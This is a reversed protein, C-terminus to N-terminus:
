APADKKSDRRIAWKVQANGNACVGTIAVHRSRRMEGVQGLYVSDGLSLRGGQARLRFGLGSPLRLLAAVGNQALSVQVKPHLHFRIAFQHSGAGTLVDEGRVDEGDASLYLRRRHIVAFREAYGNHSADLWVQGDTEERNVTVEDPARGLSGDPAIASSNTDDITLTSHAATSRQAAQWEIEHHGAGGLNVVLRERAISLEFALTGAHARGELAVPGAADVLLVTRGAALRQFGMDPAAVALRPRSESQAIVTELFGIEGENAGNFLALTGDAYRLYRLMAAMAEIASTLAEPIPQQATRLAQRIDILDAVVRLHVQPSRSAHGGDTLVQARLASALRDLAPKLHRREGALALAGLILGRCASISAAGPRADDAVRALHRLQRTLALALRDKFEDEASAAFFDYYGLWAAIRRGLVDARWALPHWVGHADLFRNVLERAGRRGPDGGLERLDALWDFGDLEALWASSPVDADPWGPGALPVSRGGLTIEGQAIGRGRTPNGPWAVSLPVSLTVTGRPQLLWRYPASRYVLQKLRGM